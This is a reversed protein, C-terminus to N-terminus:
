RTRRNVADEVRQEEPALEIGLQQKIVNTTLIVNTTVKSVKGGIMARGEWLKANKRSWDIQALGKLRTKWGTPNGQLLANGAKGIAQLAIGHSHIYGERIESAAIKGDRVVMYGGEVPKEGTGTHITANAYITIAPKAAPQAHPAGPVAALAIGLSLAVAAPILQILARM